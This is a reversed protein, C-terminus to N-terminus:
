TSQWFEARVGSRCLYLPEIAIELAHGKEGMSNIRLFFDM